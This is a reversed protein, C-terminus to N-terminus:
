EAVARAVDGEGLPTAHVTLNGTMGSAAYAGAIYGTEFRGGTNHITLRGPAILAGAARADGARRLGPMYYLERWAADSATDLAGADVITRTVDGALSRAFLCDIGARGVGM